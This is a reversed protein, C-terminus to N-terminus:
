GQLVRRQGFQEFQALLVRVGGLVRGVAACAGDGPEDVAPGGAVAHRIHHHFVHVAHRDIFVALASARVHGRAQREHLDHTFRHVVRVAVEDHM